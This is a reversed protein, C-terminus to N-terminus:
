KRQRSEASDLHFPSSNAIEKSTENFVKAANVGLKSFEESNYKLQQLVNSFFETNTSIANSTIRTASMMNDTFYCVITISNSKQKEYFIM